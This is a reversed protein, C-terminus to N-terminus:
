VNNYLAIDDWIKNRALAMGFIILIASIVIGWTSIKQYYLILIIMATNSLSLIWFYSEAIISLNSIRIAIRNRIEQFTQFQDPFKLFFNNDKIADFDKGSLKEVYELDRFNMKLLLILYITTVLIAVASCIM